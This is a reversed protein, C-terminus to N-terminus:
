AKEEPAVTANGFIQVNQPAKKKSDGASANVIREIEEASLGRDLMDLKLNAEIQTRRIREWADAIIRVIGVFIICAVVFAPLVFALKDPDLWQEIAAVVM